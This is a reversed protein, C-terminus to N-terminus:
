NTSFGNSRAANPAATWAKSPGHRSCSPRPVSLASLAISTTRECQAASELTMTSRCEPVLVPSIWIAPPCTTCAAVPLSLPSSASPSIRLQDFGLTPSFFSETEGCRLMVFQAAIRTSVNPSTAGSIESGSRAGVVGGRAPFLITTTSSVSISKIKTSSMRAVASGCNCIVVANLALSPNRSISRM